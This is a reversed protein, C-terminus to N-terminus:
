RVPWKSGAHPQAFAECPCCLMGRCKASPPIITDRLTNAGDIDSVVGSNATIAEAGFPEM